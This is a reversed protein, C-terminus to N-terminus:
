AEGNPASVGCSTLVIGNDDNGIPRCRSLRGPLQKGTGASDLVLTVENPDITNTVVMVIMVKAAGADYIGIAAGKGM